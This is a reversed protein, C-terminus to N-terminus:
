QLKALVEEFLIRRSNRADNADAVADHAKENRIRRLTHLLVNGGYLPDGPLGSIYDIMEDLHM